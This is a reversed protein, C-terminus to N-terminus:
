GQAHWHFDIVASEGQDANGASAPLYLVIVYQVTQGPTLTTLTQFGGVWSTLTPYPPTPAGGSADYVAMQLDQWLHNDRPGTAKFSLTYPTGSTNQITVTEQASDGATANAITITCGSASSSLSIGPTGCSGPSCSGGGCGTGGGGTGGGSATTTAATTTPTTTTATTTTTVTTPPPPPRRHTTTTTGGGSGTSGGGFGQNAPPVTNGPRPPVPPPVGPGKGNDPPPAPGAAAGTVAFSAVLGGAAQAYMPIEAEYAPPPPLNRGGGALASAGIPAPVFGGLDDTTLYRLHALDAVSPAIAAYALPRLAPLRNTYDLRVPYTVPDPRAIPPAAHVAAPLALAGLAAALAALRKM